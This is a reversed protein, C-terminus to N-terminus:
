FRPNSSRLRSPLPWNRNTSTRAASSSDRWILGGQEYLELVRLERGRVSELEADLRKRRQATPEARNIAKDKAARLEQKLTEVDFRILNDLM